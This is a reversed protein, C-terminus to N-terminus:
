WNSFYFNMKNKNKLDKFSFVRDDDDSIHFNPNKQNIELINALHIIMEDKTVEFNVDEESESIEHIEDAFIVYMYFVDDIAFHVEIDCPESEEFRKSIVSKMAKPLQNFNKLDEYDIWGINFETGSFCNSNEIIKKALLTCSNM